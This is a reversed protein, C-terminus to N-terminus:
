GRHVSSLLVIDDGDETAGGVAYLKGDLATATVYAATVPLPELDTWTDTDIDYATLRDTLGGVEVGGVRYIRRDIADLGFYAAAAPM